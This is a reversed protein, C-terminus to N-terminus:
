LNRNLKRNLYKNFDVKSLYNIVESMQIGGKRAIKVGYEIDHIGTVSHADPNIAFRCGIERANYFNRWDLDLRYPSANIEIAVDNRACAEIVKDINIQYAQRSLLLRGTPHGLVDTHPNELAKIIRNTMESESLYFHSHVSAVVFDFNKVSKSLVALPDTSKKIDILKIFLWLFSRWLISSAPSLAITAVQEKWHM